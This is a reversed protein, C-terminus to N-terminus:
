EGTAPGSLLLHRRCPTQPGRDLNAHRGRCLLTLTEEALAKLRAPGWLHLIHAIQKLPGPHTEGLREAIQLAPPRPAEAQSAPAAAVPPDTAPRETWSAPESM